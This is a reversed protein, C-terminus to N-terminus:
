TSGFITQYAGLSAIDTTSLTAGTLFVYGSDSVVIDYIDDSKEGGFYTGWQRVGASDFKVVFGDQSANRTEQHVGPTSIHLTSTTIGGMYVNGVTDCAISKPTESGNGAYLTSWIFSGSSDMKVLVAEYGGVPSSQHAGPSLYVAQASAAPLRGSFYINGWRDTALPTGEETAPGGYYTGWVPFGMLDLKSIFMDTN